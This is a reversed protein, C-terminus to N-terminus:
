AQRTDRKAALVIPRRITRSRAELKPKWVVWHEGMSARVGFGFKSHRMTSSMMESNCTLLAVGKQELKREIGTEVVTTVIGVETVIISVVDRKVTEVVV